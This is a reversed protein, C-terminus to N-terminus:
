TLTFKFIQIEWGAYKHAVHWRYEKVTDSIHMIDQGILSFTNQMKVIVITACNSFCLLKSPFVFCEFKCKDSAFKHWNLNYECEITNFKYLIEILSIM